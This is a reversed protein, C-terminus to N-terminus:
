AERRLVNREISLPGAGFGLIVLCSVLLLLDLEAGTGQGQPAIFGIQPLKFLVTAVLMDIALLIAAIRTGLGVILALGGVVEVLMVVVAMVGPLPVGLSGLFGGFGALNGIKPLGHLLFTIGVLVRLLTITYPAFAASQGRLRM